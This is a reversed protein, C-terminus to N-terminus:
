QSTCFADQEQLRGVTQVRSDIGKDCDRIELVHVSGFHVALNHGNVVLKDAVVGEVCLDIDGIRTRGGNVRQELTSRM